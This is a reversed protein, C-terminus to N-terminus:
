LLCFLLRLIVFDGVFCDPIKSLIQIIRNSLKVAVQKKNDIKQQWTKFIELMKTLKDPDGYALFKNKQVKCFMWDTDSNVEKIEEFYEDELETDELDITIAWGPNDLTEIKIVFCHEWDGNCNSKFWESLWELVNM